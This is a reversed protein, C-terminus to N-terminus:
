SDAVPADDGTLFSVLVALLVVVGLVIPWRSRMGAGRGGLSVRQMSGPSPEAGVVEIPPLDEGGKRGM